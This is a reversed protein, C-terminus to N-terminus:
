TAPGTPRCSTERIAAAREVLPRMALEPRYGTKRCFELAIEFHDMSRDPNGITRATLGLLHDISTSLTSVFTGQLPELATYQEAALAM